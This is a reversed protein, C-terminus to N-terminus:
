RVPWRPSVKVCSADVGHQVLTPGVDFVTPWCQDLIPDIHRAQQHPILYYLLNIEYEFYMMCLVNTNIFPYVCVSFLVINFPSAWALIMLFDTIKNRTRLIVM